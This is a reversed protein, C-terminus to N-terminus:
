WIDACIDITGYATGRANSIHKIANIERNYQMSCPFRSFYEREVYHLLIINCIVPPIYYSKSTDLLVQSRRVYGFVIDKDRQTIIDQVEHMSM